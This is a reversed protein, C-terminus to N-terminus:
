GYAVLVLAWALLACIGLLRLSGSMGTGQCQHCLDREAEGQGAGIWRWGKGQCEECRMQGDGKKRV